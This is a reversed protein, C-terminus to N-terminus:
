NGAVFSFDLFVDRAGTATSYLLIYGSTNIFCYCTAGYIAAPFYMNQAPRYGVPLNVFDNGSAFTSPTTVKGYVHVIGDQTKIYKASTSYDNYVPLTIETPSAATALVQWPMSSLTVNAAQKGRMYIKGNSTDLALQMMAINDPTKLNLIPGYSNFPKIGTEDPTESTDRIEFLGNIGPDDFNPAYGVDSRGYTRVAYGSINGTHLIEYGVWTAGDLTRAFRVKNQNLTLNAASVGDDDRYQMYAYDQADDVGLTANRSGTYFHLAGTMAASGDRPLSHGAVEFQAWSTFDGANIKMRYYPLSGETPYFLQWLWNSQGDYPRGDSVMVVLKGYIYNGNTTWPFSDGSENNTSVLYEGQTFATNFLINVGDVVGAYASVKQGLTTVLDTVQDMSITIPDDGDAAHEDAHAKDIAVAEGNSDFGVVQDTEGSLKDQKNPINVLQETFEAETGAYGNAQAVQFPSLGPAGIGAVKKGNLYLAM